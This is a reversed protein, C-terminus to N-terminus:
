QKAEGGLANVLADVLCSIESTLLFFDADLRQAVDESDIDSNQELLEDAFKVSTLSFNHDLTFKIRNQWDLALKTVLKGAELHTSIEDSGLDQKKVRAIGGDELVAKLEAADGMQFGQPASGDRVWDTLTLEIPNEVSLPVVPLSGLSKRMLALMDEAQRASANIYIRKTSGDYIAQIVSFKSFARPLLSHLVEDKLSDKETKKLKRAQEQELKEIKEQIARQIVPPPLIKTERKAEVLIFGNGHMAIVESNDGFPSVFGFKAMDQSGCPTFLIMNKKDELNTLDAERSLKYITINKWHKFM